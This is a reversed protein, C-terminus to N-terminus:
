MFLVDEVPTVQQDKEGKTMYISSGLMEGFREFILANFVSSNSCVDVMNHVKYDTLSVGGKNVIKRFQTTPDDIARCNTAIILQLIIYPVGPNTANLDFNKIWAFYLDTYSLGKPLKGQILQKMFLECNKSSQQSQANMIVDGEYFKFVMYRDEDMTPDLQLTLVERDSPYMTIENPYNFTRLKSSDRKDDDSNYFRINFVGIARVGEGYASAVPVGGKDPTDSYVDAPIYVEAYPVNLVVTSGDSSFRFEKSM